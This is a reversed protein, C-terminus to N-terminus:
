RSKSINPTKFHRSGGIVKVAQWAQWGGQLGPAAEAAGGLGGSFVRRVIIQAWTVIHMIMFVKNSHCDMQPTQSALRLSELNPNKPWVQLHHLKEDCPRSESPGASGSEHSKLTLSSSRQDSPVKFFSSCFIGIHVMHM